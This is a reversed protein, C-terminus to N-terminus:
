RRPPVTFGAGKYVGSMEESRLFEIFKRAEGAKSCAAVPYRIPKHTEQPFTGVVEVKESAKADSAYVIGADAEGMEVLRVAARVDLAPALRDKLGEWWGLAELAERAYQGAPVHEPDAVAIRKVNPLAKAFDFGKSFEVAFGKGRPAVMVLSNALLDVRTEAQIAGAKALDDMWEEDASVFVDAPAGAKIQQALTSSAGFSTKVHTRNAREFRAAAETVVEATSSAAFVTLEPKVVPKPCSKSECSVVLALAALLCLV